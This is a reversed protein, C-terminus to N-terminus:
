VISLRAAGPSGQRHNGLRVPVTVATMHSVDLYGSDLSGNRDDTQACSGLDEGRGSVVRDGLQDVGVEGDAPVADVGGVDIPETLALLSQAPPELVRTSTIVDDEDGLSAVWTHVLGPLKARGPDIRVRNVVVETLAQLSEPGVVDIQIQQVPVVLRNRRAREQFREVFLLRATPDDCEAGGVPRDLPDSRRVFVCSLVSEGPERSGRGTQAQGARDLHLEGPRQEGVVFGAAPM